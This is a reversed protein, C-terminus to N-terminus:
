WQIQAIWRLCRWISKSSERLMIEMFPISANVIALMAMAGNHTIHSPLRIKQVAGANVGKKSTRKFLEASESRKCPEWCHVYTESDYKAFAMSAFNHQVFAYSSRKTTLGKLAVNIAINHYNMSWAGVLLLRALITSINSTIRYLEIQSILRAHMLFKRM